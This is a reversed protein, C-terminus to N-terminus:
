APEFPNWPEYNPTPRFCGTQSLMLILFGFMMHFPWDLSERDSFLLYRFRLIECTRGIWSCFFGKVLMKFNTRSMRLVIEWDGYKMGIEIWFDIYEWLIWVNLGTQYGGEGFRNQMERIKPCLELFARIAAAIEKGQHRLRSRDRDLAGNHCHMSQWFRHCGHRM